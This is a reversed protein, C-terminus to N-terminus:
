PWSNPIVGGDKWGWKQKIYWLHMLDDLMYKGVRVKILRSSDLELYTM